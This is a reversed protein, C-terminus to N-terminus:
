RIFRMIFLAWGYGVLALIAFTPPIAVAWCAVITAKRATM